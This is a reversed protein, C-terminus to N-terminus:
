LINATSLLKETTFMFWVHMLFWKSLRNTDVKFCHQFLATYQTSHIIFMLISINFLCWMPVNASAQSFPSEFSSPVENAEIADGFAHSMFRFAQQRSTRWEASWVDFSHKTEDFSLCYFCKFQHRYSPCRNIHAAMSPGSFKTIECLVRQEHGDAINRLYNPLHFSGIPANFRWRQKRPLRHRLVFLLRNSM